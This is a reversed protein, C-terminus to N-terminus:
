GPTCAWGVRLAVAGPTRGRDEHAIPPLVRPVDGSPERVMQVAAEVEEHVDLVDVRAGVEGLGQLVRDTLRLYQQGSIPGPQTLARSLAPRRRMSSGASQTAFSIQAPRLRWIVTMGTSTSSARIGRDSSSGGIKAPSDLRCAKM